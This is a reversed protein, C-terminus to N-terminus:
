EVGAAGPRYEFVIPQGLRRELRQAVTRALFDTGGGPTYPMVLAIPKTPYTQAQVSSAALVAAAMCLLRAVTARMM